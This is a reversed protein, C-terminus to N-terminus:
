GDDMMGVLVDLFLFFRHLDKPLNRFGVLYEGIGLLSLSIIDGVDLAGGGVKSVSFKIKLISFSEKFIEEFIGVM